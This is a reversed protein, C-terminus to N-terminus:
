YTRIFSVVVYEFGRLIAKSKSIPPLGVSDLRVEVMVAIGFVEGFKKYVPEINTM